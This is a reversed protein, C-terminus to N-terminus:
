HMGQLKAKKGMQTPTIFTRIIFLRMVFHHENVIFCNTTINIIYNVFRRLHFINIDTVCFDSANLKRGLLTFVVSTLFRAM